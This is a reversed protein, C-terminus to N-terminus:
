SDGRLRTTSWGPGDLGVAEARRKIIQNLTQPRIHGEQVSGHPTFPRFLAGETLDAALIWAAVARNPCYRLEEETELELVCTPDGTSNYIVINTSDGPEEPPNLDQLDVGLLTNRNLDTMAVLLLAARDRLVAFDFTPKPIVARAEASLDEARTEIEPLYQLGIQKQETTKPPLHNRLLNPGNEIIEPPTLNRDALSRTKSRTPAGRKEKVIRNWVEEVEPLDFPDAEDHKQYVYRIAQRRTKLTSWALETRDRLFGAILTPPPLPGKRETANGDLNDEGLDSDAVWSLLDRWSSRFGQLTTEEYDTEDEDLLDSIPPPLSRM